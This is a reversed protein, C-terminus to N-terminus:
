LPIAVLVTPVDGSAGLLFGVCSTLISLILGFLDLLIVLEARENNELERLLPIRVLYGAIEFTIRGETHVGTFGSDVFPKMAFPALPVACEQIRLTVSLLWSPM